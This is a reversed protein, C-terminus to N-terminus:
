INTLDYDVFDSIKISKQSNEEAIVMQTSIQRHKQMSAKTQVRVIEFRM